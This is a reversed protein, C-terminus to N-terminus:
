GWTGAAAHTKAFLPDILPEGGTLQLRRVGADAMVRPLRQRRPWDMGAFLKEGLYRHECDDNCGLNVQDSARAYGYATKPRVPVTGATPRGALDIGWGVRAAEALWVPIPTDPM